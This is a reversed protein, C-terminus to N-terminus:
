DAVSVLKFDVRLTCRGQDPTCAADPWVVERWEVQYGRGNANMM